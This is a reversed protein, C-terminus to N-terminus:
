AEAKRSKAQPSSSTKGSPQRTQALDAPPEPHLDTLFDTLNTLVVEEACRRANPEVRGESDRPENALIEELRAQAEGAKARVWTQLQGARAIQNFARPDHQRLADAILSGFEM